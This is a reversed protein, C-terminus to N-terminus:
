TTPRLEMVHAPMDHPDLSVFNWYGDWEYSQHRLLDHMVFLAEHPLGVAAPSFEVWGSQTHRYDLNVVVLLRQHGHASRKSFAFLNPNDTAHVLFGENRQLAPNERRVRNILTITSAISEPTDLVWDRIEYKESNLYEESGAERPANQILEFAPGYMGYNSSLTASLILRVLFAPRGGHQLYEHLIDPTNPWLNPRFYEAVETTYLESFYGGLEESTTRWTFYTYSQTFGLKALHYMRRPRTFAESLFIVEPHEGKISGIAWEWFAFSKTHPNDVRFITVGQDIWYDFVSKLEEWLSPWADTEFNIPFIDEYRKPPNEAYQISGDPRHVFWEPHDTVWPHDPSCQFAIDLAVSIGLEAAQKVLHRFKELSGLQPHIAKHGGEQSGIAWPSGPDDAGAILTNNKGKRKTRGIPHIPPLYLVDFGMDRLRPLFRVCDSFTGHRGRKGPVSRPFLEYWSSFAAQEPEALVPIEPHSLTELRTDPYREMLTLLEVSLAIETRATLSLRSSRLEERLDVLRAVDGPSKAGLRHVTDDLLVAGIHLDVDRVVDVAAKKSLGQRWTQFHDVWGVVSFRYWGVEDVSFVGRYRDNGMPRM